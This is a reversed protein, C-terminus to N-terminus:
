DKLRRRPLGVERLRQDVNEADALDGTIREPTEGDRSVLLTPTFGIRDAEVKSLAASVERIELRVQSPDFEQLLEELIQRAAHSPTSGPSVYLLLEYQPGSDAFAKTQRALEVVRRIESVLVAPDLPKTLFADCGAQQASEKSQQFAHGTFAVVPVHRTVPDSKIRHTAEWGDLEPLALDMVVVDPRLARAKDVAQRGDVATEVRFGAGRLFHAFAELTDLTDEVLLVLLGGEGPM